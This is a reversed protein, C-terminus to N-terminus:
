FEVPASKLLLGFVAPLKPHSNTLETHLMQPYSTMSMLPLVTVMGGSFDALRCSGGAHPM